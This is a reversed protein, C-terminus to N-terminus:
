QFEGQTIEGGSTVNFVYVYGSYQGTVTVTVDPSGDGTNAGGKLSLFTVPGSMTISVNDVVNKRTREIAIPLGSNENCMRNMLMATGALTVQYGYLKGETFSGSTLCDSAGEGSRAKIQAARMMTQMDKVTTQIQQRDNFNVFGAIGGGTILLIITVTVLLEILTFGATQKLSKIIM